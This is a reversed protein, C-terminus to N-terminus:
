GRTKYHRSSEGNEKDALDDMGQTGNMLEKRSESEVPM